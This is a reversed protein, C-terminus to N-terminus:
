RRPHDAPQTPVTQRPNRNTGRTRTTPPPFQRTRTPPGATSTPTSHPGTPHPQTRGSMRHHGPNGATSHLPPPGRPRAPSIDHTPPFTRSVTSGAAPPLKGRFYPTEDRGTATSASPSYPDPGSPAGGHLGHAAPGGPLTVELPEGGGGHRRRLRQGPERVPPPEQQPGHPFRGAARPERTGRRGRRGDASNGTPVAGATRPACSDGSADNGDAEAGPPPVSELRIGM